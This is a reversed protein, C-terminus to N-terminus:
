MKWEFLVRVCGLLFWGPEWPGSPRSSNMADYWLLDDCADLRPVSVPSENRSSRERVACDDRPVPAFSSSGQYRPPKVRRSLIISLIISRCPRIRMSERKGIELDNGIRWEATRRSVDEQMGCLSRDMWGDMWGDMWFSRWGMGGMWGRGGGAGGDLFGGVMVVRDFGWRRVWGMEM